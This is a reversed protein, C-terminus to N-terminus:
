QPRDSKPPIAVIDGHFRETRSAPLHQGTVADRCRYGHGELLGIVEGVRRGQPALLDDSTEVLLLPRAISLTLTAGTLVGLESGETDIKIFRPRLSHRALIDDLREVRVISRKRDQTKRVAAHQMAGLAAFEEKGEIHEIELSGAKDGAACTEVTVNGLGHRKVNALAREAVVAMPEIALVSGTKGALTACLVTYFGINAGIDVACDGPRVCTRVIQALHPEFTGTAAVRRALDSRVDIEFQEGFAPVNFLDVMPGGAKVRAAVARRFARDARREGLRAFFRTFQKAAVRVRSKSLREREDLLRTVQLFPM